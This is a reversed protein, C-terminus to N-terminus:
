EHILTTYLGYFVELFKPVILGVLFVFGVAFM